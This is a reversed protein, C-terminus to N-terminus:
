QIFKNLITEEETKKEKQGRYGSNKKQFRWIRPGFTKERLGDGSSTDLTGVCVSSFINRENSFYSLSWEIFITWICICLHPWWTQNPIWSVFFNLCRLIHFPLMYTINFALLFQSKGLSSIKTINWLKQLTCNDAAAAAAYWVKNFTSNVVMSPFIESYNHM